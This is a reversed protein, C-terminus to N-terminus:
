KINFYSMENEAIKKGSSNIGTISFNYEGPELNGELMYETDTVEVFNVVVNSKGGIYSAVYVTYKEALPHKEWKLLVNTSFTSKNKPSIINIKCSGRNASINFNVRDSSEAIKIDNKNYAEVKFDYRCDVLDNEVTIKTDEVKRDLYIFDGKDPHLTIKYYSADPYADWSLTPKSEKLASENKPSTTKLDLKFINQEGVKTIEDEEITYKKAILGLSSTFYLYKDTKFVKVVLSYEGPIANRIIFFGDKDTTEKYEKGSCGSLFSFEKCMTVEIGEAPKGNWMIRGAITGKGKQPSPIDPYNIPEFKTDEPTVQEHKGKEIEKAIEKKFKSCSFSSILIFFSILPFLIYKVM